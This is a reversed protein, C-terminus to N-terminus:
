SSSREQTFENRHLIPKSVGSQRQQCARKALIWGCLAEMGLVTKKCHDIVFGDNLPEDGGIAVSAQLAKEGDFNVYCFRVTYRERETTDHTDWPMLAVACEQFLLDCMEQCSRIGQKELENRIIEFDPYMYFGGTPKLVKIDLQVMRDYCYNAVAILIRKTHKMYLLTEDSVQLCSLAAYQVPACACSYTHSGASVVAGYLERLSPPYIHYGLRWGGTGAWKSLGSSLITGEPYYTAISEHGAFSLRGYIEDAIVIVNYRRLVPVIAQIDKKQYSTGTPNDPNCVILLKYESNSQRFASALLEPTPIWENEYSTYINIPEHRSLRAQPEYTIWRPYLLFIDGDFVNMTLFILEKTGPGVIVLDPDLNELRDFEKHFECIAKRLPKIGKVPLYAKEGSHQALALRASEMVPFPSQGFAFHHVTHGESQMQRLKDNLLLNPAPKYNILDKRVMGESASAFEMDDSYEKTM